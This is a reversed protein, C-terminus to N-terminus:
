PLSGGVSLRLRTGDPATLLAAGPEVSLLRWGDLEDGPSLSRSTGDVLLLLAVRQGGRRMTGILRREGAIAASPPTAPAVGQRGPMFLPREVIAPFESLPPLTYDSQAASAPTTALLTLFPILPKM